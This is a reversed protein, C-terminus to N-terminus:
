YPVSSLHRTHILDTSCQRLNELISMIRRNGRRLRRAVGSEHRDSEGAQLLPFRFLASATTRVPEMEKVTM